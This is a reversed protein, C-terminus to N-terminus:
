RRARRRPAPAGDGDDRVSRGESWAALEDLRAKLARPLPKMARRRAVLEAVVPRAGVARALDLLREVHPRLRPYAPRGLAACDAVAARYAEEFAGPRAEAEHELLSTWVWEIWHRDEGDDPNARYHELVARLRALAEPRDRGSLFLTTAARNRSSTVQIPRGEAEAREAAAVFLVFAELHQDRDWRWHAKSSLADATFRQPSRGGLLDTLLQTRDM